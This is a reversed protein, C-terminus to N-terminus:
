HRHVEGDFHGALRGRQTEVLKNARQLCRLRGGVVGLSLGRALLKCSPVGVRVEERRKLYTM